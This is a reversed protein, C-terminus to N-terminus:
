GILLWLMGFTTLASFIIMPLAQKLSSSIKIAVRSSWFLGVGLVIVQLFM